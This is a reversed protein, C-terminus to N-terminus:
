LKEGREYSDNDSDADEGAEYGYSVRNLSGNKNGGGKEAQSACAVCYKAWPIAELRAIPIQEGNGQCIGYTGDAIRRLAEDIERVLKRESDMLGLTNEIEFNDSGVDAPHFPTRSLNAQQSLLTEDAMHSVDGVIEMRKALLVTRFKELESPTLHTRNTSEKEMNTRFQHM